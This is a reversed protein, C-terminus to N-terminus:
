NLFLESSTTTISFPLMLPFTIKWFHQWGTAGDIKAAENVEKSLAQLGALLMIMM